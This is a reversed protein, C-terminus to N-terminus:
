AEDDNRYVIYSYVFPVLVLIATIGMFIPFFTKPDPMIFGLIVVLLGGIMWIPRVLQHTKEWSKDSELTWPTRFGIFYNPKMITAYYGNIVFLVGMSVFLLNPHKLSGANSMYIIFMALIAIFFTVIFRLSYYKHGMQM